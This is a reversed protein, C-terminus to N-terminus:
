SHLISRDVRKEGEVLHVSLFSGKKKHLTALRVVKRFSKM